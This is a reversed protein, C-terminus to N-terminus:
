EFRRMGKLEFAVKLQEKLKRMTKLLAMNRNSEAKEIVDDVLDYAISVHLEVRAPEVAHKKPLRGVFSHDHSNRFAHTSVGVDENAYGMGEVVDYLNGDREDIVQRRRAEMM